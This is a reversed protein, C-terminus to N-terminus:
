VFKGSERFQALAARIEEAQSPAMGMTNGRIYIGEVRNDTRAADIRALTDLLAPEGDLNSFPNIPAQDRMPERLDLALVMHSPQAPQGGVSAAIMAFLLM